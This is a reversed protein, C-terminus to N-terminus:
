CRRKFNQFINLFSVQSVKPTFSKESFFRKTTQPNGWYPVDSFFSKKHFHEYIHWFVLYFKPSNPHFIFTHHCFTRSFLSFLYKHWVGRLTYGSNVRIIINRALYISTDDYTSVKLGTEMSEHLSNPVMEFESLVIDSSNSNLSMEDM